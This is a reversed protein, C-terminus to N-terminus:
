GMAMQPLLLNNYSFKEEMNTKLTAMYSSLQQMANDTSQGINVLKVIDDLALTIQQYLNEDLVSAGKGYQDMLVENLSDATYLYMRMTPAMDGALDVNPLSSAEFTRLAMNLDSQIQGALVNYGSELRKSRQTLLISVVSLAIVLAVFVAIVAYVPYLNRRHATSRPRKLRFFRM